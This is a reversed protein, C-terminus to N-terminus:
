NMKECMAMFHKYEKSGPTVEYEEPDNLVAQMHKCVIPTNYKFHPCTCTAYALNVIYWKSTDTMSPVEIKMSGISTSSSISSESPAPSSSIFKESNNFKDKCLKLFKSVIKNDGEILDEFEIIIEMHKCRYDPNTQSDNCSCTGKIMDFTYDVGDIEVEVTNCCYTEDESLTTEEKEVELNPEKEMKMNDKDEDESGGVLQMHKCMKTPNYRRAPCSCDTGNNMVYYWMIENSQSKVRNVKKLQALEVWKLFYKEDASSNEKQFIKDSIQEMHSCYGTTVYHNCECCVTKINVLLSAESEDHSNVSKESNISETDLETDSETDPELSPLSQHNSDLDSTEEVPDPISLPSHNLSQFGFTKPQEKQEVLKKLLDTQGDLQDRIQKILIMLSTMDSTKSM